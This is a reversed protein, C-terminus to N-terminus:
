TFLPLVKNQNLPLYVLGDSLDNAWAVNCKKYEASCGVTTFVDRFSADNASFLCEPQKRSFSVWILCNHKSKQWPDMVWLGFM